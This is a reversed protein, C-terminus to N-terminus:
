SNVACGTSGKLMGEKQLVPEGFSGEEVRGESYRRQERASRIFAFPISGQLDMDEDLETAAANLSEDSVVIPDGYTTEFAEVMASDLESETIYVASNRTRYM